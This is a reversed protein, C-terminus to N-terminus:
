RRSTRRRPKKSSSRRANRQVASAARDASEVVINYADLPSIKDEEIMSFMARAIEEYLIRVQEASRPGPPTSFGYNAYSQTWGEIEERWEDPGKREREV